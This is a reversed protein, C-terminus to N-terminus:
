HSPLYTDGTRTWTRIFATAGLQHRQLSRINGCVRSGDFFTYRYESTQVELHCTRQEASTHVRHNIQSHHQMSGLERRLVQPPCASSQVARPFYHFCRSYRSPLPVPADTYRYHITSFVLYTALLTPSIPDLAAHWTFSPAWLLVILLVANLPPCTKMLHQKPLVITLPASLNLQTHQLEDFLARCCYCLASCHCGVHRSPMTLTEEYHANTVYLSSRLDVPFPLQKTEESDSAVSSPETNCGREDVSRKCLCFLCFMCLFCTCCVQPQSPHHKRSSLM